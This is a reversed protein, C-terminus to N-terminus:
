KRLMADNDMSRSRCARSSTPTVDYERPTFHNRDANKTTVTPAPVTQCRAVSRPPHAGRM